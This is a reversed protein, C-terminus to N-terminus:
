FGSLDAPEKGARTALPITLAAASYPLFHVSGDAFVWNGGGEHMSWFHNSDCNNTVNGRRYIGPMPCGPYLYTGGIFDQTALVNAYDSFSWWGWALDASPPREGLMLTTSTGDTIDSIAVGTSNAQFVGSNTPTFGDLWNGQSDVTGVGLSGSVGVYWILGGTTQGFSYTNYGGDQGARPDSPCEFLRVNKNITGPFNADVAAQLNNQEILPLIKYPWGKWETFKVIEYAFVGRPQPFKGYSGQYNVLAIGLQKMNNQCQVRAAAERIKQVAPLLLGILIAIIAIVVLLEILTFGTRQTSRTM